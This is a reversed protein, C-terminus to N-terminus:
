KWRCCGFHSEMELVIILRRTSPTSRRVDPYERNQNWASGHNAKSRSGNKPNKNREQAVSKRFNRGTTATVLRSSSHDHVKRCDQRTPRMRAEMSLTMCPQRKLQLGEFSFDVMRCRVRLRRLYEASQVQQVNPRWWPPIWPLGLDLLSQWRAHVIDDAPDLRWQYIPPLPWLKKQRHRSGWDTWGPMYKAGDYWMHIRYPRASLKRTTCTLRDREVVKPLFHYIRSVEGPAISDNSRCLTMIPMGLSILKECERM